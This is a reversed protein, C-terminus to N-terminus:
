GANRHSALRQYTIFTTAASDKDGAPLRETAMARWV